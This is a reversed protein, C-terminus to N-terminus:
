AATRAKGGYVWVSTGLPAYGDAWILDMAAFRLRVCGHSAEDPPVSGYGHIALGDRHFYKPRWMPGLDGRRWGDVQWEIEFRGDPTDAVATHGDPHRYREGTGTSTNFVWVTRGDRVVFLVQRQKDVEIVDGAISRAQPPDARDLRASTTDALRGDVTLGEYAQFAYVAQETLVGFVGDIPGVWYHLQHLRAQLERVAPGRDGRQLVRAAPPTPSGPRMTPSVATPPTAAPTPSARGGSSRTTTAPASPSELTPSRTVPAPTVGPSVPHPRRAGEVTCASVVVVLALPILQAHM